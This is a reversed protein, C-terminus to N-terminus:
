KAESKQSSITENIFQHANESARALGSLLADKQPATFGAFLIARMSERSKNIESTMAFAKKTLLLHIRRRDNSDPKTILLKKTILSDITLSVSAKSIHRYTTIDGATDTGQNNALFAIIDLETQTLNFKKCPEASCLEYARTFNLIAEIFPNLSPSNNM